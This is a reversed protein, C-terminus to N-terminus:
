SCDQPYLHLCAPSLTSRAYGLGPTPRREIYGVLVVGFGRQDQVLTAFHIWQRKTSSYGLFINPMTAYSCGVSRDMSWDHGILHNYTGLEGRGLILLVKSAEDKAILKIHQGKSPKCDSATELIRRNLLELVFGGIQSSLSLSDMARLCKWVVEPELDFYADTGLKAVLM